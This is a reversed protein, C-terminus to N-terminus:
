LTAWGDKFFGVKSLSYLAIEQIIEKIANKRDYVTSIEYQELMQDIVTM